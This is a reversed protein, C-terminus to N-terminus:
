QLGGDAAFLPAGPSPRAAPSPAACAVARSPPERRFDIVCHLGGHVRNVPLAALLSNAPLLLDLSALGMWACQVHIDGWAQIILNQPSSSGGRDDVAVGTVRAPRLQRLADVPSLAGFRRSAELLHARRYNMSAIAIPRGHLELIGTLTDHVIVLRTHGLPWWAGHDITSYARYLVRESDILAPILVNFETHSGGGSRDPEAAFECLVTNSGDPVLALPLLARLATPDTDFGVILTERDICREPAVRRDSVLASARLGAPNM